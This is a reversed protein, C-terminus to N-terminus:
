QALPATKISRKVWQLGFILGRLGYRMGKVFITLDVCRFVPHQFLQNRKQAACLHHMGAVANFKPTETSSADGSKGINVAAAQEQKVLMVTLSKRSCVAIHYVLFFKLYILSQLPARSGINFATRLVGLLTLM